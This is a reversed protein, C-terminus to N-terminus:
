PEEPPKVRGFLALLLLDYVIKLAGCLVLPWGFPSASLLYGGLAPSLAAAFSRPVV